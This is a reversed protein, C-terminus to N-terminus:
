VHFPTLVIHLLYQSPSPARWLCGSRWGGKRYASERTPIPNRHCLTKENHGGTARGGVQRPPPARKAADRPARAGRRQAPACRCSKDAGGQMPNPSSRGREALRQNKCEKCGTDHRRSAAMTRMATPGGHPPRARLHPKRCQRAPCGRGGHVIEQADVVRPLIKCGNDEQM